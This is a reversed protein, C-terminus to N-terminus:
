RQNSAHPFHLVLVVDGDSCGSFGKVFSPVAYSLVLDMSVDISIALEPTVLKM